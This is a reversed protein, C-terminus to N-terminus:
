ARYAGTFDPLVVCLHIKSPDDLVLDAFPVCIPPRAVWDSIMSLLFSQTAQILAGNSPQM